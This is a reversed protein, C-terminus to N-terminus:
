SGASPHLSQKLWMQPAPAEELRAWTAGISRASRSSGPPPDTVAQGDLSSINSSNRAGDGMTIVCWKSKSKLEILGLVGAKDLM